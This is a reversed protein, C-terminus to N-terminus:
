SRSSRTASYAGEGGGRVAHANLCLCVYYLLTNYLLLLVVNFIFKLSMIIKGVSELFSAM